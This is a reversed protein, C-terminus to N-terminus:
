FFPFVFASGWAKNAALGELKTLVWKLFIIFYDPSPPYESLHPDFIIGNLVLDHFADFSDEPCHLAEPNALRAFAKVLDRTCM